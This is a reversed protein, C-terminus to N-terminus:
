VRRAVTVLETSRPTVPGRSWDGYRADVILGAEALFADLAPADLFRLRTRDTRLVPGTADATTETFTVVDGEVSEVTHWVRLRRGSADEVERAHGPHWAEWVRAQPHRTEFAFRGGPRLASRVAALSVRLEDDGVLCQFAHSAMVALDFEAEFTLEAATGVWWDVDGRRRARALAARDPDVGVLRGTHGRERASHLM